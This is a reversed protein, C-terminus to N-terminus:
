DVLGGWRLGIVIPLMNLADETRVSLWRVEAFVAMRPGARILAGGGLNFAFETEDASISINGTSASVDANQFGIGGLLYPRLKSGSAGPSLVGDIMVGVFRVRADVNPDAEDVGHHIWSGNVRAGLIGNAATVGAIIQALFGTNAGDAFDGTPISVGLGGGVYGRAQASAQGAGSCIVAAAALLGALVRQM